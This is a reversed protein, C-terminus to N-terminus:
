PEGREVRNIEKIHIMQRCGVRVAHLRHSRILRKVTDRSIGWRMAVAPVPFLM